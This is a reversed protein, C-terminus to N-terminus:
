FSNSEYQVMKVGKFVIKLINSFWVYTNIYPPYLSHSLSWYKGQSDKGRSDVKRKGKPTPGEM